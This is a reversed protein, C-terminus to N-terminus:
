KLDDLDGKLRSAQSEALSIKEKWDKEKGEATKLKEFLRSVTAEVFGNKM